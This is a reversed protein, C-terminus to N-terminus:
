CVRAENRVRERRAVHRSAFPNLLIPRVLQKRLAVFRLAILDPLKANRTDFKPYLELLDHWGVAGEIFKPQNCAQEAGRRYGGGVSVM